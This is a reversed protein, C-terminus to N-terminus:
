IEEEALQLQKINLDFGKGLSIVLHKDQIWEYIDKNERLLQILDSVVAMGRVNNVVKGNQMELNFSHVAKASVGTNEFEHKYLQFTQDEKGTKKLLLRIVPIYKKWLQLYKGEDKM